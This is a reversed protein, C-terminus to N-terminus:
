DPLEIIEHLQQEMNRLINIIEPLTKQKIDQIDLNRQAQARLDDIRQQLDKAIGLADRGISDVQQQQYFKLAAGRLIQLTAEEGDNGPMVRLRLLIRKQNHIREIEVQKPKRVPILALSMMRKLENIVGQFLQSSIDEVISQVVGDKSWLIRSQRQRRELYLRGIGQQTILQRLLTQTLEKPSLQNLEPADVLSAA